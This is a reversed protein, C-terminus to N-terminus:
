NVETKRNWEDAARYFKNELSKPVGSPGFWYHMGTWLWRTTNVLYFGRGESIGEAAFESLDKQIDEIGEGRLQAKLTEIAAAGGASRGDIVQDGVQITHPEPGPDISPNTLLESVDPAAATMDEKMKGILEEMKQEVTVTETGGNRGPVIRSEKGTLSEFVEQPDIVGGASRAAMQGM